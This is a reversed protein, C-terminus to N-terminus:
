KDDPGDKEGRRLESKVSVSTDEAEFRFEDLATFRGVEYPQRVMRCYLRWMKREQILEGPLRLGLGEALPKRGLDVLARVALAWDDTTVWALRYWAVTLVILVAATLLLTSYHPHPAALSTLAVAAVLLHGYLLCVFFDVGARASDVQQSLPKPSAATLEYWLAQSDLRYRDYGYEELRRIANGLRTPAVQADDVPYRRLRERLMSRQVTTRAQDREAFRSLRQDASLTALRQKEEPKELQSRSDLARLHIADLRDQLLHKARVHHSQRLRAIGFLWLYGELM